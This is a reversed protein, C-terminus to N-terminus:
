GPRVGNGTRGIHRVGLGEICSVNASALSRSILMRAMLPPEYSEALGGSLLCETPGVNLRSGLRAGLVAESVEAPQVDFDVVARRIDPLFVEDALWYVPAQTTRISFQDRLAKYFRASQGALRRERESKGTALLVGASHSTAGDGVRYRDILLIKWHPYREVAQHLAWAGIIGGGIIVLDFDQAM